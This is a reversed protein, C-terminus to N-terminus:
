CVRKPPQFVSRGTWEGIWPESVPVHDTVQEPADIVQMPDDSPIFVVHNLSSNHFPLKGHRDHDNREHEADTYHMVLFEGWTLTGGSEVLHVNFHDFLAPVRAVEVLGAPALSTILLHVLLIGAAVVKM